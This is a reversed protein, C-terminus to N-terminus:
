AADCSRIRRTASGSSRRRSEVDGLTGDAPLQRDQHAADAADHIPVAALRIASSTWASTEACCWRPGSPLPMQVAGPTASACLRRAMMSRAVPWCGIVVCPRGAPASRYRRARCSGRAARRVRIAPTATGCTRRYQLRGRRRRASPALRAHFAEAPHVGERMQSSRPVRRNTARSRM